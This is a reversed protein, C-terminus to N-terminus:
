FEYMNSIDLNNKNGAYKEDLWSINIKHIQPKSIAMQVNVM